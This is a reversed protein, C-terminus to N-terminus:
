LQSSKMATDSICPRVSGSRRRKSAADAALVRAIAQERREDLFGLHAQSASLNDALNYAEMQDTSQDLLSAVMRVDKPSAIAVGTAVIKRPLHPNIRVGLEIKTAKCFRKYFTSATMDSGTSTIWMADSARGRLLMPRIKNFWHDIFPTLKASLEAQIRRRAKTEVASFRIEYVEMVNRTINRGQLMGVFNRKRLAKCIIASMMLGDSFVMASVISTESDVMVRQMRDIGAYFMDSPAVLLDRQDRSPEATRKLLRILRILYKPKAKPAIVRLINHIGRIYTLRAFLSVRALTKAYANLRARTVREHPAENPDLAGRSRLFRVWYTYATVNNFRYEDSWHAALGSDVCDDSEVFDCGDSPDFSREMARRDDAPWEELWPGLRDARKTKPM